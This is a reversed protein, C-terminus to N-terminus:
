DNKWLKINGDQSKYFCSIFFGCNIMSVHAKSRAGGDIKDDEKLYSDILLHYGVVRAKNTIITIGDHNIMGRLISAHTRLNLSTEGNNQDADIVMQQFDIPIKLFIGGNVNLTNQLETLDNDDEVIGILNGHGAKLTEDVLKEFYTKINVRHQEDCKSCIIGCLDQIENSSYDRPADLNLSVIEKIRLGSLEVVKRGVNRIYAITLGEIETKLDGVLQTFISPSTEKLEASAVGYKMRKKNIEIFIVWNNVALPACLKIANRFEDISADTEKIIIENNPFPKFLMGYDRTIIVEPFLPKGEEYYDSILNLIELIGEQTIDDKDFGENYLFSGITELISNRLSSHKEKAM